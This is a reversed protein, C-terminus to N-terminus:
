IRSLIRLKLDSYARAWNSKGCLREKRREDGGAGRNRVVSKRFEVREKPMRERIYVGRYEQGDLLWRGM